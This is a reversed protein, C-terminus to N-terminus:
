KRAYCIASALSNQSYFHTQTCPSSKAFHRLNEEIAIKWLQARFLALMQQTTCRQSPKAPYWKPRALPMQGAEATTGALLLFAYAAVILSPVSEVAAPKRVQAEGVGLVTKEDKFNVEIEWRWLYAQLLQELPLTPDTCLLYAPNRYLLRAGKRPRYALPRVVVLRATCEGSGKWRVASLTKLEFLHRTGAAYAEVQLWQYNSDQRIVEPTPLPNGYFKRRGRRMHETEAPVEFLKADKRIRGILITDAPPNRFLTRNTFGGDVACVIRKGTVCARLEQLQQAAVTSVKMQEQQKRYAQWAESSAKKKPKAASPAHTFGIPIGRARGKEMMDPLAASLQLFRQGWVFNTCFHPGLPDRKWATGYIKRGSKRVLTDDMMVVLPEEAPLREVVTEIAPLFLAQPNFREREFLRYAASWDEFQRGGAALM